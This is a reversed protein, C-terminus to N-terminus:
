DDRLGAAARLAAYGRAAGDGAQVPHGCEAWGPLLTRGLPDKHGVFGADVNFVANFGAQQLLAAAHRSRVGTACGCYVTQAPALATQAVQLFDPNALMQGSRPDPEYMPVNFAEVPHGAEFEGVTRVDLYVATPDEAMRAAVQDPSLEDIQV